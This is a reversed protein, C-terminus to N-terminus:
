KRTFLVVSDVAKTYPFVDFPYLEKAQYNNDLLFQMDKELSYINNSIYIIKKPALKGLADFLAVGCGNRPSNIFVVDAKEQSEALEEILKSPDSCYFKINQCNNQKASLIAEKVHDNNSEMGIVTQATKAALLGLVGLGAYTDVVTELGNLGALEIAKKYVKLTQVPNVPYHTKSYIKFKLEDFTDEIFGKGYIISEKNGLVATTKKDNINLLITTIEPHKEILLKIFNNKSPLIPSGLVLIVMIESSNIGTRIVVHRLLGYGTEEDYTKIKFPKLMEKIDAVIAQAKSMEMMCEDIAVLDRGGEKYIGTIVQGRVHGFIADTKNRYRNPVEMGVTPLVKLKEGFVSEAVEQKKKLQEQYEIGQYDCKNCQFAYQCDDKGLKASLRNNRETKETSDQDFFKKYPKEFAKKEGYSKKEGYPKSEGYAKKEGYPKSEGYSKKEGFAKREGFPKSEGYAKKEGYPKSEGYAKKEGYPKSEGYSKKEGFSKREGYPKSEGYAKKEGYPKSEGYSKKEGFSKREGYPKSEGYAKKEGYPKSEGYAKKEGYPKSEGYSKKEGFSKREGYPKSEGYAKKEGYPKSEGYSKKEGYTKQGGVTSSEKNTKAYPKKAYNNKGTTSGTTRKDTSRNSNFERM